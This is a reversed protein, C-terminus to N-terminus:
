DHVLLVMTAVVLMQPLCISQSNRKWDSEEKLMSTASAFVLETEDQNAHMTSRALRAPHQKREMGLQLSLELMLKVSVM